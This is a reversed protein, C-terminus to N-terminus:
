KLLIYNLFSCVSSVCLALYSPPTHPRWAREAHAGLGQVELHEGVWFSESGASPIETSVEDYLYYTHNITLEIELGEGKGLSSLHASRALNRIMAKDKQHVTGM